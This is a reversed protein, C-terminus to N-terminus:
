VFFQGLYSDFGRDQAIYPWMAVVKAGIGCTCDDLVVLMMKTLQFRSSSIPRVWYEYCRSINIRRRCRIVNLLRAWISPEDVHLRKM